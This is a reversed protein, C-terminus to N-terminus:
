VRLPARTWPTRLHGSASMGDEQLGSVMNLGEIDRRCLAAHYGEGAFKKGVSGCNRRGRRDCALRKAAM